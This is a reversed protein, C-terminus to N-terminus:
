KHTLTWTNGDVTSNLNTFTSTTTANAVGDITVTGCTNSGAGKGIIAIGDGDSQSYIHLKRGAELKLHKCKLTAGDELVLHVTGSMINLVKYEVDGRAVYYGETLGVWEGAHSGQLVSCDKTETTTTVQKNADNWSRVNFTVNEASARGVMMLLLAIIMM